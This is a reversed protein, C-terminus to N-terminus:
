IWGSIISNFINQLRTKFSPMIAILAMATASIILAYEVATAGQENRLWCHIKRSSLM